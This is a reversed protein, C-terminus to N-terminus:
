PPPVFSAFGALFAARSEPSVSDHVAGLLLITSGEGKARPYKVRVQWLEAPRGALKGRGRLLTAAKRLPGIVVTTGPEWTDEVVGGSISLWKTAGYELLSDHVAAHSTLIIIASKPTQGFPVAGKERPAPLFAMVALTAESMGNDLPTSRFGAPLRFTAGDQRAEKGLQVSPDVPVGLWSAVAESAAASATTPPQVVTTSSVPGQTSSGVVTTSPASGDPPALTSVDGCACLLTGLAFASRRM